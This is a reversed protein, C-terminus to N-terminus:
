KELFKEIKVECPEKCEELKRIDGDLKGLPVLGSAYGFDRYFIALNGWPSYYTIDGKSANHSKPADKLSLKQPLNGVKEKSNYDILNLSLPLLSYFDRAASNDYLVGMIIDRGMTIQIKMVEGKKAECWSSENLFLFIAAVILLMFDFRFQYNKGPTGM